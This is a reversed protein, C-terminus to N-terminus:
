DFNKIVIFCTGYLRILTILTYAYLRDYSGDIHTGFYTLIPTHTGDNKFLIQGGGGRIAGSLNAYISDNGTLSHFMYTNVKTFPFSTTYTISDPRSITISYHDYATSVGSTTNNATDAKNQKLSEQYATGIKKTGSGGITDNPSVYDSSTPILSRLIDATDQIDSRAQSKSIYVSSDSVWVPDSESGILSNKVSDVYQKDTLWYNNQVTTHSNYFVGNNKIRFVPTSQKTFAGELSDLRFQWTNRNTPDSAADVIFADGTNTVQVSGMTTPNKIYNYFWTQGFQLYDLGNAARLSMYVPKSATSDLAITSGSNVLGNLTFVSATGGTIENKMQRFTVVTSDNHITTDLGSKFHLGYVTDLRLELAQKFDSNDVIMSFRAPTWVTTGTDLEFYVTKKAGDGAVRSSIFGEYFDQRFRGNDSEWTFGIFADTSGLQFDNTAKIIGNSATYHDDVYKFNALTSDRIIVQGNYYNKAFVNGTLKATDGRISQSVMAARYTVTGCIKDNVIVSGGLNLQNTGTQCADYDAGDFTCLYANIISNNTTTSTSYVAIDNTSGSLSRCKSSELNLTITNADNINECGYAYSYSSIGYTTGTVNYCDVVANQTTGNDNWAWVGTCGDNLSTIYFSLNRLIANSGYITFGQALGNCNVIVDIDSFVLGTLNNATNIGTSASGTLNISLNNIRVNDNNVQFATIGGTASTILTGHSPTVPTTVFGSSGQGVINLQKSVVISSTITYVGSALVITSGADANNVYTQINGNIPVYIINNWITDQKGAKQAIWVPDSEAVVGSHAQIYPIILTDNLWIARARVHVTDKRGVLTDCSVKRKVIDMQGFALIPFM